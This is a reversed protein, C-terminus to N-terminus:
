VFDLNTLCMDSINKLTKITKILLYKFIKWNELKRIPAKLVMKVFKENM